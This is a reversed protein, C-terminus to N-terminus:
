LEIILAAQFDLSAEEAEKRTEFVFNNGNPDTAVIAYEPGGFTEIIIFCM